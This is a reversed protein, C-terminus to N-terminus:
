SLPQRLETQAVHLLQEVASTAPYTNATVPAARRWDFRDPALMPVSWMDGHYNLFLANHGVLLTTPQSACTIWCHCGPDNYAFRYRGQHAPCRCDCTQEFPSSAPRTM